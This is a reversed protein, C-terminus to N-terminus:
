TAPFRYELLYAPASKVTDCVEVALAGAAFATRVLTIVPTGPPLALRRREDETPMRAGVEEVFEVLPHGAEELRAYIGGPGSDQRAIPTGKALAWPLYSTALEVPQGDALYRRSRRLVPARDALGLRELVAPPADATRAVHIQDVGAAYGSAEAEALFAARGAERHRRAFRESALRRVPPATRVFVGRGHEAVALGEAKLEQVAQRVTMRAVGLRKMLEAESPLRSGPEASGSTIAERLADAIQRYPPRDSLRDIPELLLM